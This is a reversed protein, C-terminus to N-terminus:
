LYYKKGKEEICFLNIRDKPHETCKIDIPAFYDIKEKKHNKNIQKDHIFKFCSECLYMLCEFCLSTAMEKCIECLKNNNQKKEMEM